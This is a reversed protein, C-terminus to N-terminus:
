EMKIAAYDNYGNQIMCPFCIYREGNVTVVTEPSNEFGSVYFVNDLWGLVQTGGYIQVFEIPLLVYQSDTTKGIKYNLHYPFVVGGSQLQVNAGDVTYISSTDSVCFRVNVGTPNILNGNSRNRTEQFDGTPKWFAGTSVNSGSHTYQYNRRFNAGNAGIYLPYSYEVDTGSPMIFGCYMSMYRNAVKAIVIFRRGNAFFWYQMQANWLYMCSRVNNENSNVWQNYLPEANNWSRAGYAILSYETKTKDVWLQMPVIIEDRGDLGGGKFCRNLQYEGIANPNYNTDYPQVKNDKLVQWAQNAAVLAPNTTLFTELKLLLDGAHSAVGTEMAM